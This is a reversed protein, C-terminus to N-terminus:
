KFVVGEDKLLYVFDIDGYCYVSYWVIQLYQYVLLGFFIFTKKIKLSYDTDVTNCNKINPIIDM